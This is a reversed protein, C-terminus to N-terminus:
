YSVLIKKICYICLKNVYLYLILHINYNCVNSVYISKYHKKIKTFPM